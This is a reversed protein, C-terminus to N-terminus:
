LAVPEDLRIRLVMLSFLAVGAVVVMASFYFVKELGLTDMVVGSLLPSISIGASMAMNFAGMASGQGMKRGETVVMATAAPISLAGGVGMVSTIAVFQIFSAASPILVLSVVPLLSGLVILSTRSHRDALKGFPRQLLANLIINSTLVTGIESATLQIETALLPLFSIIAAMGLANIGRFLMLARLLPYRLLNRLSPAATKNGEMEPLFSAVVLFSFGSLLFMAYFVSDMGLFDKLVGGALPGFGLGLFLSVTFSGMRGGEGGQPSIEGIYAMAIPIVMASAFGHVMRVALLSGTSGARIYALSTLMYLFLGALIFGKRGRRDSLSGILPMFVGRAISFGAFIAGVGLGTAGLSEAYVPLLPAVIGLGLMATFVSVFLVKFVRKEM